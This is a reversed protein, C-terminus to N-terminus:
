QFYCFCGQRFAVRRRHSKRQRRRGPERQGGGEPHDRGAVQNCRIKHGVDFEDMEAPDPRHMDVGHEKTEYGRSQQGGAKERSKQNVPVDSSGKFELM